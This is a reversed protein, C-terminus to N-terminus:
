WGPHLSTTSHPPLYFHLQLPPCLSQCQIFSRPVLTYTWLKLIIYVQISMGPNPYLTLNQNPHSPLKESPNCKPFYLHARLSRKYPLQQHMWFAEQILPSEMEQAVQWNMTADGTKQVSLGVHKLMEHVNRSADEELEKPKGKSMKDMSEARLVKAVSGVGYRCGSRKRSSGEGMEYSALCRWSPQGLNGWLSCKGWIFRKNDKVFQCGREGNNQRNIIDTIRSSLRSIKPGANSRVKKKGEKRNLSWIQDPRM